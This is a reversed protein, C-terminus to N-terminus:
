RAFTLCSVIACAMLEAQVVSDAEIAGSGECVFCWPNNDMHKDPLHELTWIVYGVAYSGDASKSGDFQARLYRHARNLAKLALPHKYGDNALKDAVTNHERYVHNFVDSYMDAPRMHHLSHM